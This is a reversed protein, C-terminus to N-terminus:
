EETDSESELSAKYANLIENKVYENTPKNIPYATNISKGEKTQKSPMAVFVGKDGEIIKFGDVVFADEITISAFAKLKNSEYPIVRVETIKM